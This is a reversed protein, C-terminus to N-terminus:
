KESRWQLCSAVWCPLDIPEKASSSNRSAVPVRLLQLLDFSAICESAMGWQQHEVQPACEVWDSHTAVLHPKAAFGLRSGAIAVFGALLSKAALALAPSGSATPPSSSLHCVQSLRTKTCSYKIKPCIM